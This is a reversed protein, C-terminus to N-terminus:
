QVKSKIWELLKPLWVFWQLFGIAVMFLWTLIDTGIQAASASVEVGVKRLLEVPFSALLGAFYGLPFTLVLMELYLLVRIEGDSGTKSNLLYSAFVYGCLIIWAVLLLRYINKHKVITIM